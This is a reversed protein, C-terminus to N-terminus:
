LVAKGAGTWFSWFQYCVVYFLYYVNCCNTIVAEHDAALSRQRGTSVTSSENWSSTKRWTPCKWHSTTLVGPLRVGASVCLWALMFSGCVYIQLNEERAIHSM